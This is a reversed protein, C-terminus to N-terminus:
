SGIGGPHADRGAHLLDYVEDDSVQSFNQYFQGIAYMEPAIYLCIFEDVLTSLEQAAEVSSVPTALIIKKPHFSRVEHIACTMTAGTAIGDDVLIVTRNEFDPNALGYTRQREKLQRLQRAAVEKVYSSLEAYKKNLHIRGSLGICGIAFEENYSSPIKHVLVANLEGHLGDALIRAMPMAGRPIGAVIVNKDQYSKLRELLKQASARRDTFMM